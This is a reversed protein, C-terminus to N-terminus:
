QVTELMPRRKGLPLVSSLCGVIVGALLSVPTIWVFSLGFLGAHAMGVAVVISAVAALWTGLTTAWPVFMAMFFLVFLPATFLNVITYCKELLDGSVMYAFMSLVVVLIGVFWSVIKAERVGREQDATRSSRFRGIWDVTIVSCSSNIGSSLSDMAASLIGAIVLGGLGAPLVKAIFLPLLQDPHTEATEGAPLMEPHVTFYALLALGLIALLVATFVDCFLSIGFMRRASPLDRTALYRQIAMQDSGATCIYWALTSVLAAGVSMRSHSEIFLTPPDWHSLWHAPWWHGVGGMASSVIALSVCIGLLMVMTQAVDTFVVARLGGMSTYAVTVIGMTACVYPTSSIPLGLLPVVVVSSTAYIIVAMWMLRLLLFLSSGLMRVSLGFRQELIEYASTVRLRMIFPIIFRAVILYILPYSLMGSFYLPGHRIMEGPYALYTLTSMLTSFLSIGVAWPKMHRAGLLYEDVTKVRSYYWGVAMMAVGYLGLVLWDLFEFSASAPPAVGDTPGPQAAIEANTPSDAAHDNVRRTTQNGATAPQSSPEVALAPSSLSLSFTV